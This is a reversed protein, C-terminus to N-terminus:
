AMHKRSAAGVIKAQKSWGSRLAGYVSWRVVGVSQVTRPLAAAVWTSGPRQSSAVVRGSAVYKTLTTAPGYWTSSCSCSPM